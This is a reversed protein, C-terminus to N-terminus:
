NFEIQMSAWSLGSGVVVLAVVDGAKFRDWNQSAVVPAGAAAQNGYEVINYFHREAPIECRRCVAELMTLNAQHGIYILSGARDPGVRGQIEQLLSSM